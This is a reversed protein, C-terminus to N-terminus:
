VKNKHELAKHLAQVVTKQAISNNYYSKLGKRNDLTFDGM